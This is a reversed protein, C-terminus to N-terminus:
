RHEVDIRATLVPEDDHPPTDDKYPAIVPYGLPVPAGRSGASVVMGDTVVGWGQKCTGPFVIVYTYVGKQESARIARRYVEKQEDTLGTLEFRMVDESMTRSRKIGEDNNQMVKVDKNRNM